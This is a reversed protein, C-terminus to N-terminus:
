ITRVCRARRREPKQTPSTWGLSDALSFVQEVSRGQIPCGVGGLFELADELEVLRSAMTANRAEGRAEADAIAQAVVNLASNGNVQFDWDEGVAEDALYIHEKTVEAKSM